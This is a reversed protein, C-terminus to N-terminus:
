ETSQESGDSVKSNGSSDGKAITGLIDRIDRGSASSIGATGTLLILLILLQKRM